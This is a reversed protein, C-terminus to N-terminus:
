RGAGTTEARASPPQRVLAGSRSTVFIAKGPRPRHNEIVEGGVHTGEGKRVESLMVGKSTKTPADALFAV